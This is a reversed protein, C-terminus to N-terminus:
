NKTLFFNGMMEPDPMNPNNYQINQGVQQYNQPYYPIDTQMSGPHYNKSKKNKRNRGAISTAKPTLAGPGTGPTPGLLNIGQTNTNIQLRPNEIM